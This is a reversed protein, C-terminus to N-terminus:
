FSLDVSPFNNVLLKKLHMVVSHKQKMFVSIINEKKLFIYKNNHVLIAAEIFGQLKKTRVHFLDREECIIIQNKFFHVM